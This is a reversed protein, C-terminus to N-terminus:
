KEKAGSARRKWVNHFTITLGDSYVARVEITCLSFLWLITWAIVRM